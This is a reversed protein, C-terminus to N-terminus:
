TAPKTEPLINILGLDLSCNLISNLHHETKPPVILYATIHLYTMCPANPDLGTPKRQNMNPAYPLGGTYRPYNNHSIIPTIWGHSHNFIHFSSIHYSIINEIIPQTHGGGLLLPFHLNIYLSERSFMYYEQHHSNSLPPWM